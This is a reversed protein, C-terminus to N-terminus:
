TSGATDYIKYSDLTDCPGYEVEYVKNCIPVGYKQWVNKHVRLQATEMGTVGHAYAKRTIFLIYWEKTLTSNVFAAQKYGKINILHKMM